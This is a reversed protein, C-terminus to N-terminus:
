WKWRNITYIGFLTKFCGSIDEDLCLEIEPSSWWFPRLDSNGGNDAASKREVLKKDSISPSEGVDKGDWPLTELEPRTM